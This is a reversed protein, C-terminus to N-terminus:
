SGRTRFTPFFNSTNNNTTFSPLPQINQAANAPNNVLSDLSPIPPLNTDLTSINSTAASNQPAFVSFISVPKPAHSFLMWGVLFSMASIFTFWIRLALKLPKMKIEGPTLSIAAGPSLSKDM